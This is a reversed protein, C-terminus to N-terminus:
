PKAATEIPARIGGLSVWERGGDGERKVWVYGTRHWAMVTNIRNDLVYDGRDTRVLLVAHGEGEKNIVMAIRMARAPVGEAQLLRRKEIQIDECDGQGDTPFDWRDSIGWHAIDTVPKIEANVKRNVRILTNWLDQSFAVVEPEDRNVRCEAPSRDCFALWAKTAQVRGNAILSAQRVTGLDQAPAGSLSVAVLPAALLAGAIRRVLRRTLTGTNAGTADARAQM